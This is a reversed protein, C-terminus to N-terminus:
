ACYRGRASQAALHLAHALARSRGPKPAGRADLSILSALFGALTKGGGTPAILLASRQALGLAALKLQHPRPSWGRAAFWGAFKPPLAFSAAEAGRKNALTTDTANAM